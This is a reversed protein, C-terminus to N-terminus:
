TARPIKRYWKSNLYLVISHCKIYQHLKSISISWKKGESNYIKKKYKIWDKQEQWRRCYRERTRNKMIVFKIHLDSINIKIKKMAQLIHSNSIRKKLVTRKSFQLSPTSFLWISLIWCHLAINIDIIILWRM